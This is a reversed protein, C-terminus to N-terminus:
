WTIHGDIRWIASLRSDLNTPPVRRGTQGIGRPRQLRFGDQSHEEMWVADRRISALRPLFGTSRRIRGSLCEKPRLVGLCKPDLRRIVCGTFEGKSVSSQNHIARGAGVVDSGGEAFRRPSPGSAAPGSGPSGLHRAQSLSGLLPGGMVETRGELRVAHGHAELLPHLALLPRTPARVGDLDVPLRERDFRLSPAQRYAQNRLGGSRMRRRSSVAVRTSDATRVRRPRDDALCLDEGQCRPFVLGAM